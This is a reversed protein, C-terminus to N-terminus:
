LCIAEVKIIARIFAARVPLVISSFRLVIGEEYFIFFWCAYFVGLNGKVVSDRTAHYNIGQM